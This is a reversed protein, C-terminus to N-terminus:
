PLLASSRYSSTCEAHSCHDKPTRTHTNQQGGVPYALDTFGPDLPERWMLHGAPYLDLGGGRDGGRLPYLGPGEGGRSRRHAPLHVLEFVRVVRVWGARALARFHLRLLLESARRVLVLLLPPALAPLHLIRLFAPLRVLLVV